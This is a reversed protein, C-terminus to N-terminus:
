CKYLYVTNVAVIYFTDSVFIYHSGGVYQIDRASHLYETIDKRCNTLAEIPHGNKKESYWKGTGYHMFNHM